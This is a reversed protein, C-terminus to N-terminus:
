LEVGSILALEENRKAMDYFCIKMSEFQLETEEKRWDLNVIDQVLTILNKRIAVEERLVSMAVIIEPVLIGSVEKEMRELEEEMVQTFPDEKLRKLIPEFSAKVVLGMLNRKLEEM